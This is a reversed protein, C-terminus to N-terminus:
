AHVYLTESTVQNTTTTKIKTRPIGERVVTHHREKVTKQAERSVTQGGSYDRTGELVTLAYQWVSGYVHIPLKHDSFYQLKLVKVNAV